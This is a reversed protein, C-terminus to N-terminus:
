EDSGDEEQGINTIAAVTDDAKHLRILIVGQTPRKLQPINKIPLKIVNAKSTTLVVSIDQQTVIMGCAVNGTKPSLNAVKVGQGGRKQVPYEQTPTRKGIGKETVILFDRFFKRRGDAPKQAEKNLSEAAVIFDGAKLSIGRVGQTDRATARIEKESFRISKGHSTVLIIHDDGGTLSGWVLQDDDKLIIAIIGNTRINQFDAMSTKKVLGKKTALFIYQDQASQEGAKVTIIARLQEHQEINILNIVAQGKAQRSGEPIEHVKLKFVKGTNTFMLLQDHTNATILYKLSDEAKTAMGMVGQGGRRQSKYTSLPMRKIYGTETVAIINEEPAVLDEENFEGVGSKVVQTRRADQYKEKLELLESSIVGLIKNPHSLLMVLNEITLKIQKYEDEIKKRELAALRRLQMDLIATAQIHSLGFKEMLRERAVDADTSNRIINIVEDLHDLAILLGELIHARARASKLEYQARATVVLQRHAVYSNLIVKLTMLQPAGQDNLAVLNASFTDQLQTYKFLNNLVSKPRSDRKLEIVIRMGQRDSEDRLDTIGVIKKNRVLDAIKAVLRAKNVQYPLETVIIQYKGSKGEEITTKARTLVRGKGTVYVDKIAAHDFIIGGTPFDPGKIHTLLDDVTAESVFQGTLLSPTCSELFEEKANQDTSELKASVEPNTNSVQGMTILQTIADVVESLNHPPIKTAMGVAIGDAGMLLLNPLRAPMVTPEQYSGDFNDTFSVTNKDLDALLEETIAQLKAETYRMAAASDGDVSGFNGQGDILPYRMSFDQALRVLADYVATDGHPHYKGLVEGVIRASKKYSANHSLGLGKMAFLIRRHVPKLGDRVDPLARSVIVSMAYDLYSKEMETVMSSPIITGFENTYQEPLETIESQIDPNTNDDSMLRTQKRPKYAWAKSDIILQEAKAKDLWNNLKVWKDKELDKYHEFFHRIQNKTAEPIDALSEYAGYIPDIKTSKAVAVIKHDIGEEDEMELVGIAKCNVIVGPVVPESLFVLADLADGDQGKTDEILGYNVPYGMATPMIRDVVIQGTEEDLEYKVRSGQPIEILVKIDM